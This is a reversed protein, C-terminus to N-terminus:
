PTDKATGRGRIVSAPDQKLVDALERIADLSERAAQVSTRVSYELNDTNQAVGETTAQLSEVAESFKKALEKTTELIEQVQANAQETDVPELKARLDDVLTNISDSTEKLSGAVDTISAVVTKFDSQVGDMAETADVVLIDADALLTDLGNIASEAAFVMRSLQGEEMGELSDAVEKVIRSLDGQISQFQSIVSTALSARTPIQSDAPLIPAGPEGGNLSIYLVGTALSFMVTEAEVGQRIDVKTTDVEIEVRVKYDDTVRIDTVAGVPSGLFEVVAGVNLGLVSYDFEMWYPTKPTKSFGTMILIAAVVAAGGALM